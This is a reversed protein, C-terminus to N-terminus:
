FPEDEKKPAARPTSTRAPPSSERKPTADEQGKDGSGVFVVEEAEVYTKSQKQGDKEWQDLRLYGRVIVQRGKKLFKLCTGGLGGWTSVDIFLSRERDKAVSKNNGIRFSVNTHEGVNRSEPDNTLRGSLVVTNIDSAM